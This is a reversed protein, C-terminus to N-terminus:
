SLLATCGLFLAIILNLMVFLGGVVMSWVAGRRFLIFSSTFCCVLTIVFAVPLFEKRNPGALLLGAPVFALVLGVTTKWQSPKPKEEIPKEDMFTVACGKWDLRRMWSFHCDGCEIWFPRNGFFVSLIIRVAIDRKRRFIGFAVGLCWVGTFFLFMDPSSQIIKFGPIGVVAPVFGLILLLAAPFSSKSDPAQNPGHTEETM